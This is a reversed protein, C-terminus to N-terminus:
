FLLGSVRTIVLSELIVCLMVDLTDHGTNMSNIMDVKGRIKVVIMRDDGREEFLIRITKRLGYLPRIAM